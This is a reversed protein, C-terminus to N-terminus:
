SKSGEATAPAQVAAGMAADISDRLDASIAADTQILWVSTAPEGYAWDAGLLREALWDLRKTDDSVAPAAAPAAAVLAAFRQLHERTVGECGDSYVMSAAGMSLLDVRMGAQEALKALDADANGTWGISSAPAAPAAANCYGWWACFVSPDLYRGSEADRETSLLQLPSLHSAIKREFDARMEGHDLVSRVPAMDASYAASASACEECVHGPGAARDCCQGTAGTLWVALEVFDDPLSVSNAGNSVATNMAEALLKGITARIAPTVKARADDRQMLYEGALAEADHQRQQRATLESKLREVEAHLTQENATLLREAQRYYAEAHARDKRAEEATELTLPTVVPAAELMAKWIPVIRLPFKPWEQAKWQGEQCMQQTPEIPVLAMGFPVSTAGPAAALMADLDQAINGFEACEPARGRVSWLMATDRCRQLVDLPALVVGAPTGDGARPYQDNSM